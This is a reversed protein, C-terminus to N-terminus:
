YAFKLGYDQRKNAKWTYSALRETAKKLTSQL